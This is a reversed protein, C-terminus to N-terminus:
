VIRLQALPTSGTSATLSTATAFAGTVGTQQYYWNPTTTTNTAVQFVIGPIAASSAFAAGRFTSTTAATQMNFALYYWGSSVSQSITIDYATDATTVSVTGADLLVTTPKGTTTSANYIGLRVTATGSFTAGSWIGIRDFNGTSLFIPLYYTVDETPPFVASLTTTYSPRVYYGSNEQLLLPDLASASTSWALGTAATSDATLVQGNSGVGLRAPTSAGTAAILDGKTTLITPQIGGEVSPIRGVTM